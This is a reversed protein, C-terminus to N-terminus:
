HLYSAGNVDITAGTAYRAKGSALFVVWEAIDAPTGPGGLPIEDFAQGKGYHQVFEDLQDTQIMGPVVCYALVNDKAFFRAVGRTLSILGGKSAGDHFFEPRDGRFAPRSGINVIIGLGNRRFHPIALRTLHAPAILNVKMTTVWGDDFTELDADIPVSPRTAANNVLVDVRGKWAVSENWLRVLQEPKDLEAGLPLCRERGLEAAIQEARDRSRTYNLIVAAGAAHLGRVIGEGVGRSGGTVLVSKGSLDTM